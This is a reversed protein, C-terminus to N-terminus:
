EVLMTPQPPVFSAIAASALPPAPSLAPPPLLSLPPLERCLAPALELPPGPTAPPGLSGGLVLSAPESELVPMPVLVLEPAGSLHPLLVQSPAVSYQL